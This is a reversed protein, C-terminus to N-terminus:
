FRPDILLSPTGIPEAFFIHSSLTLRRSCVTAYNQCSIDEYACYPSALISSVCRGCLLVLLCGGLVSHVNWWGIVAAPCTASQFVFLAVMEFEILIM